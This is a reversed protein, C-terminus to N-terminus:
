LAALLWPKLTLLVHRGHLLEAHSGLAAVGVAEDLELVEGCILHAILTEARPVFRSGLIRARM